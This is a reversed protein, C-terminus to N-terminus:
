VDSKAKEARIRAAKKHYSARCRARHAEPDAKRYEAADMRLKERNRAAWDAQAARQCTRCLRCGRKDRQTNEATYEHGQPCHTISKQEDVRAAFAAAILPSRRINERHTVPELHAPNVCARVRCVHDLELGNPVEGILREYVMRHAQGRTKGDKWYKGYGSPGLGGVWIWCGTAPDPAIKAWFRLELKEDLWKYM